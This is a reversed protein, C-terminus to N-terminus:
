GYDRFGTATAVCDTTKSVLRDTKQAFNVRQSLVIIKQYIEEIHTSAFGAKQLIDALQQYTELAKENENMSELKEAEELLFVANETLGRKLTEDVM